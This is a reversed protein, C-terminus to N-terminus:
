FFRLIGLNRRLIMYNMLRKRRTKLRNELIVTRDELVKMSKLSKMIRRPIKIPPNM